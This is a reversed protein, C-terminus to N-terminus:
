GPDQRLAGTVEQHRASGSGMLVRGHPGVWYVFWGGIRTVHGLGCL